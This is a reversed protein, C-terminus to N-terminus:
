FPGKVNLKAANKAAGPMEGRTNKAPLPQGTVRDYWDPTLKAPATDGTQEQWQRLTNKLAAIERAYTPNAIQNRQQLPDQTTAFFEERPRPQVLAENQLATLTGTAPAQQLARAAPSQNADIPGGNAFAPRLNLVYLFDKSRVAREYAEYDHWNHEAFIYNRFAARPQVLLKTFSKGQVTVSSAAGALELLTPAIDVSSVLAEVVAGKHQIGAPWKLLFPTKLGRDYLLTKSGPFARGNDAMFIIITNQAVGQRQLEKELEGLHYDIRSIENYYSALDQRTEKTDVLTPPVTVETAPDHAQGFTDASWERHADFPALWLFFPKEKPRNQLLALWQAEGGPGNLKEGALLTDYARRTVPGEHWKGAQATYYGAKRLQEPFLTLHAPLPTHLEAAGTNHPYRGTIISARSPSCSSSTVYMNQFTLGAQALQDLNPTRIAANGYAGLDEPSIDDGIIFVINPQAPLKQAVSLTSVCVGVIILFWNKM